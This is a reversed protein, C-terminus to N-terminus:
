ELAIFVIEKWTFKSFFKLVRELSFKNITNKSNNLYSELNFQPYITQYVETDLRSGLHSVGKYFLTDELGRNRIWKCFQLSESPTLRYVKNTQVLSNPALAILVRDLIGEGEIWLFGLEKLTQLLKDREYITVILHRDEM